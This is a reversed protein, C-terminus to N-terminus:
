TGLTRRGLSRPQRPRPAALAGGWPPARAPARRVGEPDWRAPVGAPPLPVISAGASSSAASDASTVASASSSAQSSTRRPGTALESGAGVGGSGAGWPSALPM